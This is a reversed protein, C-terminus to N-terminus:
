FPFSHTTQAHNVPICTHAVISVPQCLRALFLFIIFGLVPTVLLCAFLPQRVSQALYMIAQEYMLFAERMKLWRLLPFGLSEFPVNGSAPQSAGTDASSAGQLSARSASQTHTAAAMTCSAATVSVLSSPSAHEQGRADQNHDCLTKQTSNFLIAPIVTACLSLAILPLGHLMFYRTINCQTPSSIPCSDSSCSHLVQGNGAADAAMACSKLLDLYRPHPLCFVRHPACCSCGAPMRSIKLAFSRKCAQQLM